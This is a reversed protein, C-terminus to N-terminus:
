NKINITLQLQHSTTGSSSSGSATVTFSQAGAPPTTTAGSSSSSGSSSCGAIAGGLTLTLAALVIWLRLRKRNRGIMPLFGLLGLPMAMALLVPSRRELMGTTAGVMIILTLTQAPAPVSPNNFTLSGSGSTPPGTPSTFQCTIYVPLGGCSITVTGIYVDSPTVTITIPPPDGSVGDNSQGAALTISDPNATINYDPPNVSVTQTMSTTSNGFNSDGNYTASISDTPPELALTTLTAVGQSLTATGLTRMAGSSNTFVFQVTGTPINAGSLPDGSGVHATLLVPAGDAVPGPTSVSVQTVSQVQYPSGIWITQTYATQNQNPQNPANSTAANDTVLVTDCTFQSSTPTLSAPCSLSGFNEDTPDYLVIIYCSAGPSITFPFPSLEGGPTCEMGLMQFPADSPAGGSPPQNDPTVAASTIVLPQAGTNMVQIAGQGTGSGVLKPGVPASSTMPFFAIPSGVDVSVGASISASFVTDGSYSATISDTGVPLTTVSLSASGSSLIVPPGLPASNYLFTVTGTPTPPTGVDVSAPSVTASLTVPAGIVPWQPSTTLQTTSAQYVTITTAGSASTFDATDTPTFTVTLPQNPGAGLVQGSSPMYLFTGSIAPTSPTLPLSPVAIADLQTPSLAAPYTIPSPTPWFIQPIIPQNIFKRVLNNTTDAIYIAGNQDIGLGGAQDIDTLIAPFPGDFDYNSAVNFPPNSNYPNNYGNFGTGALVTLTGTANALPGTPTYEELLAGQNALLYFNGASDMTLNSSPVGEVGGAVATNQPSVATVNGGSIEVIQNQFSGSTGAAFSYVNGQSDAALGSLVVGALQSQVQGQNTIILTGGGTGNCNKSSSSCFEFIEPAEVFSGLGPVVLAYLDNQSDTTLANVTLGGTFNTFMTTSASGTPGYEWINGRNDGFYVNGLGDAAVATTLSPQGDVPQLVAITSINGNIPSVARIAGNLYDVIYVTLDPGVAVAQPNNLLASDATALAGDGSYGDNCLPIPRSVPYPVVCSTPAATSGAITTLQGHALMQAANGNLVIHRQIGGSVPQGSVNSNSATDVVLLSGSYLETVAPPAAFQLNLTCSQGPALTVPTSTSGNCNSLGAFSFPSNTGSVTASILTLPNSGTNGVSLEETATAGSITNGFNLTNSSDVSYMATTPPTTVTLTDAPSVVTGLTATIQSTGPGVGTALGQTGAANSITAVSPTASAWTVSGTINQMSADSYTGTAICQETGGVLINPPPNSVSVAISILTVPTTVTLSVASSTSSIYASNGAFSATLSYTGIALTSITISANGNGDTMGTGLSMQQGGSPTDYFTLMQGSVPVAPVGGTLNATLTVQTGFPVHTSPAPSTLTITTPSLVTLVIAASPGSSSYNPNSGGYSATFSHAGPTLTTSTADFTAQGMIDTMIATAIQTAGDYFTVPVQNLASGNSTVTATLFVSQGYAITAGSSITTGSSSTAGLTTTTTAPMVTLVTTGNIGSKSAQITATGVNQGTALGGISDIRAATSAPNVSWTVGQIDSQMSGDSFGGNATFQLTGGVQITPTSPSVTISTLTAGFGTSNGELFYTQDYDGIYNQDPAGQLVNDVFTISGRYPQGVTPNFSLAFTCSSGSPMSSYSTAGTCSGPTESFPNAAGRPSTLNVSVNQISLTNTGVNKVTLMTQGSAVNGFNTSPPSFDILPQNAPFALISFFGGLASTYLPNLTTPFDASGTSGVLYVNSTNDLAIGSADAGSSGSLYTSYYVNTAGPSFEVLFGSECPTACSLTGQGSLPQYNQAAGPTLGPEPFDSTAVGGTVFIDGGQDVAIGNGQAVYPNIIPPTPTIGGFYSVATLSATGSVNPNFEAIFGRPCLNFTTTSFASPQCVSTATGSAGGVVGTTTPLRPEDTTGTAYINDAGDIGLAMIETGNIVRTPGNNQDPGDLYSFYLLADPTTIPNLEAVFGSFIVAFLSRPGQGLINTPPPTADITSGGVFVNGNAQDVAISSGVDLSGNTGSGLLYTFYFPTTGYRSFNLEAVFPAQYGTFTSQVAASTVQNKTTTTGVVYVNGQGDLAIGNGQDRSSGGAEVSTSNELVSLDSSLESVFPGGPYPVQTVTPPTPIVYPSGYPFYESSTQGTIYANGSSDVAIAYGAAGGILGEEGSGPPPNAFPGLYTFDQLTQNQDFKAVFASSFGYLLCAQCSTQAATTSPIPSNPPPTTPFVTSGTTGVLYVSNSPGLAVGGIAPFYTSYQLTFTPDIVLPLSRDYKGLSFGVHNGDRIVFNAAVERRQGAIEQYVGPKDLTIETQDAVSLVVNGQANVRPKASGDIELEAMSPDAGPAVDFDFEFQQRDGHFVADIGPYLGHYEVAAYNPVGTHWQKPDNGLFYNTRSPLSDKGTVEAAVTAGSFRVRLAAAQLRTEIAPADSSVQPAPANKAPEIVSLVAEKQTLFLTYGPGHSLFKVQPDTQGQNAEFMLPLSTYNAVARARTLSANQTAAAPVHAAVKGVSPVPSPGRNQAETRAPASGLITGSLIAARPYARVPSQAAQRASELSVKPGRPSPTKSAIEHPAASRSHITLGVFAVTALLAFATCRCVLRSLVCRPASGPVPSPSPGM